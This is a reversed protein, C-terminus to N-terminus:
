QWSSSCAVYIGPSSLHRLKCSELSHSYCLPGFHAFNIRKTKIAAAWICHQKHGKTCKLIHYMRKNRSKLLRFMLGRGRCWDTQHKGYHALVWRKFNHKGVVECIKTGIKVYYSSELHKATQKVYIDARFIEHIYASNRSNKQAM